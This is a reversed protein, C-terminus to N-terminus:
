KKKGTYKRANEASRFFLLGESDAAIYVPRPTNKYVMAHGATDWINDIECPIGDSNIFPLPPIPDSQDLAEFETQKSDEAIALEAQRAAEFEEKRDQYEAETIGEEELMKKHEEAQREAEKEDYKAIAALRREEMDRDWCLKQIAEVLTMEPGPETVMEVAEQQMAAPSVWVFKRAADGAAIDGNEVASTVAPDCNDIITRAHKIYTRSVRFRSAIEELSLLTEQDASKRDGGHSYGELQAAAMARQSANLQRREMNCALLFELLDADEPVQEYRPEVNAMFCASERNRGDLIQNDALWIPEKQGMRAISESMLLQEKAPLMPFIEALPHHEYASKKAATKKKQAM